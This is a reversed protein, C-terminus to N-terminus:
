RVYRLPQDLALRDVDVVQRAREQIGVVGLAAVATARPAHEVQPGGPSRDPMAAASMKAPCPDRPLPAAVRMAGIATRNASTRHM